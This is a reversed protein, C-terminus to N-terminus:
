RGHRIEQAPADLLTRMRERARRVYTKVSGLPAGMAAAAEGNSMGCADCLLLAARENPDLKQLARQLDLSLGPELEAAPQVPEGRVAEVLRSFAGTKRRGQLFSRYAIAFLWTRFAAAGEFRDISRYGAFLADQAMDEARAADNTLRWLFARLSAQHRRTLEGYARADGTAQVLIM